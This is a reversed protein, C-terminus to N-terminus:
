AVKRRRQAFSFLFMALLFGVAFTILSLSMVVLEVDPVNIGASEVFLAGVVISVSAAGFVLSSWARKASLAGIIVAVIISFAFRWGDTVGLFKAGFPSTLWLMLEIGGFLELGLIPFDWISVKLTIVNMIAFLAYVLIFLALLLVVQWIPAADWTFVDGIVLVSAIAGICGYFVDALAAFVFWLTSLAAIVGISMSMTAGQGQPFITLLATLAVIGTLLAAWASQPQSSAGFHVGPENRTGNLPSGIQKFFVYIILGLGALVVISAIM